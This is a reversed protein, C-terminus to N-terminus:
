DRGLADLVPAFARVGVISNPRLQVQVHAIGLEAYRRLRAAVAAPAFDRGTEVLTEASRALTRPDRGAAECAADVKALLPVLDEPSRMGANWEDALEATLRLMRPGAAGVMVPLGNPRPGRPRILAARASELDGDHDARGTRLMSTIIRLGDEFRDFRREFPFGFALFEAENWGAGLGLIVRGGSVEDLTEAMKAFLAPNRFPAASV